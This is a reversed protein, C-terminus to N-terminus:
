TQVLSHVHLIAPPLTVGDAGFTGPTLADWHAVSWEHSMQATLLAIPDPAHGAKDHECALWSIPHQRDTNVLAYWPLVPRRACAFTISICRRYTVGSLENVFLQRLDSDIDSAGLIAATQPAPPTLLVADAFDLAIGDNNFLAYQQASNARALRAVSTEFRITLGTALTKGLATVGSRWSWKPDSNQAPDGEAITGAADFVWVPRRIDEPPFGDPDASNMVLNHLTSSPAKVYQAGHDFICDDVRRTAARGGVGRSKEYITCRLGNQALLRAAALGSMGAGVIAIQKANENQM